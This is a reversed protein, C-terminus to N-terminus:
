YDFKIYIVINKELYNVYMTPNLGEGCCNKMLTESTFCRGHKHINEHLWTNIFSYDCTEIAQANEKQIADLLQTSYIAGIAYTPFYGFMGWGWHIDQLVGRSDSEPKVGLVELSKEEWRRAVDEVEIDGNMLEMEIEYRLIIHLSYTVEDSELRVPGPNIKNLYAFWTELSVGNLNCLAKYQEFYKKWFPLGRAIINEYFLSQSETMGLSSIGELANYQFDKSIGLDYRAHGAEHAVKLLSNFPLPEIRTTIRVDDAAIKTTFAHASTDIRFRNQPMLMWQALKEYAKKQNEPTITINPDVYNKHTDSALIDDLLKKLRPKIYSFTENLKDVTMGEEFGHLLSNYPHGPKGVYKAKERSLDVLVKLKPAFIQFDNEDKAKKWAECGLSAYKSFKEVFESPLKKSDLIDEYLRKVMTRDIESLSSDKSLEEALQFFDDSIMIEHSKKRLFAMQEFRGSIGESPMYTEQDWAVVSSISNYLALEKQINNLQKLKENM